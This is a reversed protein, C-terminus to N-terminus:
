SSKSAVSKTYRSSYRVFLYCIFGCSVLFVITTAMGILEVQDDKLFFALGGALILPFGLTSFLMGGVENLHTWSEQSQFTDKTRMGYWANMPLKNYVLPLCIGIILLGSMLFIIALLLM